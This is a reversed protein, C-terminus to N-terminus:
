LDFSAPTSAMSVKDKRMPRIVEATAVQGADRISRPHM